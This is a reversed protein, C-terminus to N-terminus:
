VAHHVHGEGETALEGDRNLGVLTTLNTLRKPLSCPLKKARMCMVTCRELSNLAHQEHAQVQLASAVCVFTPHGDSRRDSHGLTQSEMQRVRYLFNRPRSLDLNRSPYPMSANIHVPVHIRAKIGLQLCISIAANHQCKATLTKDIVNPLGLM